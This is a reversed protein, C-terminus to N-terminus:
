LIVFMLILLLSLPIIVSWYSESLLGFFYFILTLLYLAVVVLWLWWAWSTMVILVLVPIVALLIGFLWGLKKKYKNSYNIILLLLYDILLVLALWTPIFNCFKVLIYYLVALAIIIILWGWINKPSKKTKTQEPILTDQEM